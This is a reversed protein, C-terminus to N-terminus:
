YICLRCGQARLACLCGWLQCIGRLQQCFIDLVLIYRGMTPLIYGIGFYIQWNNASYMWYLQGPGLQGPGLEGLVWIQAESSHSSQQKLSQCSQQSSFDTISALLFQWNDYVDSVLLHSWQVSALSIIKEVCKQEDQSHWHKILVPDLKSNSINAQILTLSLLLLNSM